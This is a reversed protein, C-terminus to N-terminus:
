PTASTGGKKYYPRQDTGHNILVGARVLANVARTFVGSSTIGAEKCAERLAAKSSGTDVFLEDFISLVEATRGAPRDEHGSLNEVVCSSPPTWDDPSTAPLMVVRLRLPIVDDTPGDKRKDRRLELRGDDGKVRYVTDANDELATAGRTKSDSGDTHAIVLVTPGHRRLHDVREFAITSDTNDNEKGGVTSRAWTDIIVLAPKDERIIADLEAFRAGTYLNVPLPLVSLRSANAQWAYEWASVRQHLGHAGEAAIYLVPGPHVIERNQWAKGTAICCAWDLGIFSKGSSRRGSLLAVTRMDLTDAILPAPQPLAGLQDRRLLLSRLPPPGPPAAPAETVPDYPEETGDDRRRWWQGRDDQWTQRVTAPWTEEPAVAPASM